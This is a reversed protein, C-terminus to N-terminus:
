LAGILRAAERVQNYDGDSVSEFGFLGASRLVRSSLPSNASLKLIATRIKAATAAAVRPHLYIPWNPYYPTYAIIRIKSFDVKNKVKELDDERIGGADAARNFVAQVVNGQKQAFPLITFDKEPSLGAKHLQLMPFLYGGASDHDVFILKKGKLDRITEIGSDRRALIIGRFKTGAKEVAVAIPAVALEKKM